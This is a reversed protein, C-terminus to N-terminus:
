ADWTAESIEADSIGLFERTAVTVVGSVSEGTDSMLCYHPILGSRRWGCRLAARWALANNEPTIGYLCDFLHGQDDQRTLIYRYLHRGISEHLRRGWFRRFIVFHTQAARGHINNLWSCAAVEGGQMVVFPLCGPRILEDWFADRTRVSGDHFLSNLLGDSVLGDYVAGLLGPTAPNSEPLYCIAFRRTQGDSNQHM